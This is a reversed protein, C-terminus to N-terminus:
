LGKEQAPTVRCYARRLRLIQAPVRQKGEFIAHVGGSVSGEMKTFCRTATPLFHASPLAERRTATNLSSECLCSVFSHSSHSADMAQTKPRWAGAVSLVLWLTTLVRQMSRSRGGTGLIPTRVPRWAALSLPQCVSAAVSPIIPSSRLSISGVRRVLDFLRLKLCLLILPM